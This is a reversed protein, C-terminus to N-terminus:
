KLLVFIILIIAFILRYIGFIKLGQNELFKLMFKIAFYGSIFSALFGIFLALSSEPIVEGKIIKLSQFAVVAATVPISLLFSFRAAEKRSLGNVLGALITIGSRSVGRILSLIQAVGIYLANRPTIDEVTRKQNKFVYDAAILLAGVIIMASIAYWISKLKEDFLDQFLYGAALAPVSAVALNIFLKWNKSKLHDFLDKRFYLLLALLTGGHIMIDFATSHESWGFLKPILYLHGSSSVPIFETLGQVLGLIIAQIITM